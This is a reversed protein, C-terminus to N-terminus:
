ALSRIVQDSMAFGRATLRLRQSHLPHCELLGQEEFLKARKQRLPTSLWSAPFGENLRLTLMWRELDVQEPTLTESWEM